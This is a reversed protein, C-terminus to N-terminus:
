GGNNREYLIVWDHVWAEFSDKEQEDRHQWRWIFSNKQIDHFVMRQQRVKGKELQKEREFIVSDGLLRGSFDLYAGHNDVWTQKWEKTNYDFVSWSKGIYGKQPGSVIKFHEYIVRDNLVKEITNTARYESSDIKNWTLSWEGVWFDMMNEGYSIDSNQATFIFTQFILVFLICVSQLSLLTSKRMM